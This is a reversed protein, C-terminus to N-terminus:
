CRKPANIMYQHGTLVYRSGTIIDQSSTLMDQSSTVMDQSDGVRYISGRPIGLYVKVIGLSINVM